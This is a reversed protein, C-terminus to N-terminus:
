WCWSWLGERVAVWGVAWGSGWWFWSSTWRGGTLATGSISHRQVCCVDDSKM